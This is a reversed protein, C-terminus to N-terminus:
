HALETANRSAVTRDCLKAVLRYMGYGVGAGLTNLILDDFEAVGRYTLYQTIEISASLAFGLSITLLASRKQLLIPLLFGFPVFWGINGLLLWLFYGPANHAIQLLNTFLELNLQREPFRYPRLLTLYFLGGLYVVFLGGCLLRIKGSAFRVRGM